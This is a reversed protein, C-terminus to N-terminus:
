EDKDKDPAPWKFSFSFIVPNGLSTYLLLLKRNQSTKESLSGQVYVTKSSTDLYQLHARSLLHIGKNALSLVEGWQQHHLLHQGLCTCVLLLEKGLVETNSCDRTSTNLVPPLVRIKACPEQFHSVGVCSIGPFFATAPRVEGPCGRIQLVSPIAAQRGFYICKKKDQCM